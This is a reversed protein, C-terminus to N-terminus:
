PYPGFDDLTTREDVGLMLNLNQVAQGAGGKVLNDLASFVTLVGAGFSLGVEAFPSGAVAVGGGTTVKMVALGRENTGDARFRFKFARTGDALTEVITTGTARRGM